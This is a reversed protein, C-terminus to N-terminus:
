HSFFNVAFNLQDFDALLLRQEGSLRTWLLNVYREKYHAHVATAFDGVASFYFDANPVIEVGARSIRRAADLQITFGRNVPLPFLTALSQVGFDIRWEALRPLAPLRCILDVESVVNYVKMFDWYDRHVRDTYKPAGFSWVDNLPRSNIEFLEALRGAVMGGLSHGVITTPAFEPILTEVAAYALDAVQNVFRLSRGLPAGADVWAFNNAYFSWQSPSDTGRIAIIHHDAVRGHYLTFDPIGNGNVTIRNFFELGTAALLYNPMTPNGVYAYHSLSMAIYARFPSYERKCLIWDIIRDRLPLAAHIARPLAPPNQQVGAPLVVPDAQTSYAVHRRRIQATDPM